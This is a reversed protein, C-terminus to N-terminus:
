FIEIDLEFFFQFAPFAIFREASAFLFVMLIFAESLFSASFRTEFPFAYLFLRVTRFGHASVKQLIRHAIVVQAMMTM